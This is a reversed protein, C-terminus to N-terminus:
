LDVGTQTEKQDEDGSVTAMVMAYASSQIGSKKGM